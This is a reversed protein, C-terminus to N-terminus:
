PVRRITQRDLSSFPVPEPPSDGRDGLGLRWWGVDHWGGFKFGAQQFVGIPKFGLSEHFGVSADNPLTVGAFASHYNQERLVRLLRLYLQRGVGGRRVDDRVYASVECSWRYAARTRFLGGYAYGLVRGGAEAVLWPHTRLTKEIRQAMEAAAPPDTEFSIISDTVFPAYIDAIASADEPKAIRIQM